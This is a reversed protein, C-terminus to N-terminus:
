GIVKIGHDKVTKNKRLWDAITNVARVRWMGGDAEFLAVMVAGDQKSMRLLFRSEPQEVEPFTRYPQLHTVPSFSEKTRKIGSQRVVTQSVGDDSTTVSEKDVINSVFSILADKRRTEVFLCQAKITFMERDMYRGFPFEEINNKASLVCSRELWPPAPTTVLRVLSHNEVVIQAISSDILDKADPSDLYSVFGSLTTLKSLQDLAPEVVKAGNTWYKRGNVEVIDLGSLEVIRDIAEKIM